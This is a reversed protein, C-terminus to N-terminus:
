AVKLPNSAEPNEPDQVISNQDLISETDDVPVMM